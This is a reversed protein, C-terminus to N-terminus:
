TPSRWSAAPLFGLPKKIEGRFANESTFGILVFLFVFLFLLSLFLFICVSIAGSSCCSVSTNDAFRHLSPLPVNDYKNKESSNTSM